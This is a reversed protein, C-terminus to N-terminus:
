PRQSEPPTAEYFRLQQPRVWALWALIRCFSSVLQVCPHLKSHKLKLSHSSLHVLMEKANANGHANTSYLKNKPIRTPKAVFSDLCTPWANAHGRVYADVRMSNKDKVEQLQSRWQWTYEQMTWEPRFERQSQWLAQHLMNQPDANPNRQCDITAEHSFLLWQVLRRSKTQTSLKKFRIITNSANSAKSNKQM